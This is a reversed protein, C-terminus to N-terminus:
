PRQEMLEIWMEKVTRYAHRSVEIMEFERFLGNQEKPQFVFTVNGYDDGTIQMLNFRKDNLETLRQTLTKQNSM